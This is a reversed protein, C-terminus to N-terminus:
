PFDKYRLAVDSRFAREVDAMTKYRIASITWTNPLPERPAWRGDVAEVRQAFPAFALGTSSPQIIFAYLGLNGRISDAQEPTVDPWSLVGDWIIAEPFDVRLKYPGEGAFGTPFREDLEEKIDGLFAPRIEGGAGIPLRPLEEGAQDLARQALEIIARLETRM